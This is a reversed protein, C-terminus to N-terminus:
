FLGTIYSSSSFCPLSIQKTPHITVFSFTVNASLFREDFMTALSTSNKPGSPAVDGALNVKKEGKHYIAVVPLGMVKQGIAVRRAKTIDLECFKVEDGYTEELKEVHPKLEKCPECKPSWFDVLVWGQEELVEADFNHRDLALM